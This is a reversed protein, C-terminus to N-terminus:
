SNVLKDATCCTHSSVCTRKARSSRWPTTRRGTTEWQSKSRNCGAKDKNDPRRNSITPAATMLFGLQTATPREGGALTWPGATDIYRHHQPGLGDAFLCITDGFWVSSLKANAALQPGVLHCAKYCVRWFSSHQHHCDDYRCENKGKRCGRQCFIPAM